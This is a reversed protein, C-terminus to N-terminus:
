KLFDLVAKKQAEFNFRSDQTYAQRVQERLFRDGSVINLVEVLNSKNYSVMIDKFEAENSFDEHMLLPLKFGYALNYAGSIKYLRYEKFWRLGPHILGIIGSARKLYDFLVENSVFQDFFIFHNELGAAQVRAKLEPGDGRRSNGVIAFRIDPRLEHKNQALWDVFGWYDRRDQEVTGPIVFLPESPPAEQATEFYVSYFTQLSIQTSIKELLNKCIFDALVFYKKIRLNILKQTSSSLLAQPNHHIGVLRARGWYLTCFLRVVKSQATNILILDPDIKRICKLASWVAQLRKLRGQQSFYTVSQHFQKKPLHPQLKENLCLHLEYSGELAKFYSYFVESHSEGFELFLLKQM